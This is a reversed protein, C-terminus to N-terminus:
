FIQKIERDITLPLLPNTPNLNNTTATYNVHVSTCINHSCTNIQNKPYQQLKVIYNRNIKKFNINFVSDTYLNKISVPVSIHCM